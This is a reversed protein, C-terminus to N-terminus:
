ICGGGFYLCYFIIFGFLLIIIIGVITIPLIFFTSTRIFNQKKESLSTCIFFIGLVLSSIFIVWDTISGLWILNYYMSAFMLLLIGTSMLLKNKM